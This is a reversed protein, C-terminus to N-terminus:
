PQSVVVSAQNGSADVVTVANDGSTYRQYVVSSGTNGDRFYGRGAYTTNWTYPPTGGTVKFVLLDGGSLVSAPNPSITLTGMTGTIQAYAANGDQDYVIVYNNGVLTATYVGLESGSGEASGVAGNSVDWRYPPTGGSVSFVAKGGITNVIASNPSISVAKGGGNRPDSVYPHDEFYSDLESTNPDDDDGGCGALFLGAWAATALLLMMKFYKHMTMEGGATM